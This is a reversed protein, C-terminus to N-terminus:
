ERKKKSTAGTYVKINGGILQSFERNLM